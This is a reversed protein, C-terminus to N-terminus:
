QTVSKVNDHDPPCGIEYYNTMMLGGCGGGRRGGSKIPSIDDGQEVPFEPPLRHQRLIQLSNFSTLKNFKAFILITHCSLETHQPIIYFNSHQGNLVGSSVGGLHLSSM